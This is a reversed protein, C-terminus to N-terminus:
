AYTEAAFDAEEGSDYGGDRYASLRAHEAPIRPAYLLSCDPCCEMLFTCFEPTKRSSFSMPGLAGADLREELGVRGPRTSDRVPWPRREGPRTADALSTSM